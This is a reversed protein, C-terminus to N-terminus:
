IRIWAAHGERSATSVLYSLRALTVQYERNHVRVRYEVPEPEDVVGAVFEWTGGYTRRDARSFVARAEDLVAPPFLVQLGEGLRGDLPLRNLEDVVGHGILAHTSNASLEVRVDTEVGGDSGVWVHGAEGTRFPAELPGEDRPDLYVTRM